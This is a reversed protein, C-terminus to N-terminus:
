SCSVEAAKEVRGSRHESRPRALGALPQSKGVRELSQGPKSLCFAFDARVALNADRSNLGASVNIALKPWSLVLSM